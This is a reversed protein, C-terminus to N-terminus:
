NLPVIEFTLEVSSQVVVEAPLMPDFAPGGYLSILHPDTGEAMCSNVHAVGYYPSGYLGYPNDRSAVVDGLSVGLAEAQLEGNERADAIAAERAEQQLPACDEVSYVVSTMNIFLRASIAAEIAPDLLEMIREVTPDALEFRISVTQPGGYPGYGGAYPNSIIEIDTSSLGAAVLADVVPTAIDGATVIPASATASSQDMEGSGAYMYPDSGLMIVVLASEAPASASGTGSVTIGPLSTTVAQQAVALPTTLVLFALVLAVVPPLFSLRKM